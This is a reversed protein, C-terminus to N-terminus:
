KIPILPDFITNIIPNGKNVFGRMILNRGGASFPLEFRGSTPFKGNAQELASRILNQRGGLRNAIQDLYPKPHLKGDFMHPGKLRLTRAAADDLTSQSFQTLLKTSAQKAVTKATAKATSKVVIKIGTKLIASGGGMMMDEVYVPDARGTGIFHDPVKIYEQNRWNVRGSYSRIVEQGFIEGVEISGHQLVQLAGREVFPKVGQFVREAYGISTDFTGAGQSLANGIGTGVKGFFGTHIGAAIGIGLAAGGLMAYGMDHGTYGQSRGYLYGAGAGIAAGGLLALGIHIVEGNPDVYMTPNNGMGVYPSMGDFAAAAPDLSNMRGLYPDYQRAHFDYLALNLESQWEKGQYLYKNKLGVGPQQRFPAGFAYYDDQQVISIGEHEVVFDDFHVPTGNNTIPGNAPLGSNATIASSSASPSGTAAAGGTAEHSLYAYLYGNEKVDVDLALVEPAADPNKAGVAAVESVQVYGQDVLKYDADYLLYNLYATPVGQDEGSALAGTFTAANIAESVGSSELGLATKQVAGAVETAM